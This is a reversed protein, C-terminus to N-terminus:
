GRVPETAYRNMIALVETPGLNGDSGPRLDALERFYGLYREPTVTCLLSAPADKDANAFTHADGIPATVLSGPQAILVDSGSTFTVTGTLVYFTEDHQRHVHQPPGGWGPPLGCEVVGFRGGVAKGDELIRFTVPGGAFTESDDHGTMRVTM